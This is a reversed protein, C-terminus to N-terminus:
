ISGGHEREIVWLAASVVMRSSFRLKLPLGEVGPHQSLNNANHYRTATNVLATGLLPWDKLMFGRLANPIEAEVCQLITM